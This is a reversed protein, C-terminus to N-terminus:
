CHVFLAHWHPDPKCSQPADHALVCVSLLLQPVQPVTHLPPRTQVL